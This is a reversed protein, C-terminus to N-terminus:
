LRRGTAGFDNNIGSADGPKSRVMPNHSAIPYCRTYSPLTKVYQPQPAQYPAAVPRHEDFQSPITAHTTSVGAPAASAAVLRQMALRRKDGGGRIPTPTGAARAVEAGVRRLCRPHPRAPRSSSMARTTVPTSTMSRRSALMADTVTLPGSSM